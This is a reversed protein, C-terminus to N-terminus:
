LDLEGFKWYIEV